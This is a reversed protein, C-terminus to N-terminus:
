NVVIEILMIFYLFFNQMFIFFLLNMINTHQLSTLSNEHMCLISMPQLQQDCSKVYFM